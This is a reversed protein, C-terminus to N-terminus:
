AHDVEMSVKCKNCSGKFSTGTDFLAVTNGCKPTKCDQIIRKIVLDINCAECLGKYNEGELVCATPTNCSTCPLIAEMKSEVKPPPANRKRSLMVEHPFVRTREPRDSKDDVVDYGQAEQTITNEGGLVVGTSIVKIVRYERGVKLDCSADKNRGEDLRVLTVFDEKEIVNSKNLRSPIDKALKEVEKPIQQIFEHQEELTNFPALNIEKPSISQLDEYLSSISKEASYPVRIQKGDDFKVMLIVNRPIGGFFIGDDEMLTIQM